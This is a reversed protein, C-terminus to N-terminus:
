TRAEVQDQEFLYMTKTYYRGRGKTKMEVRHRCVSGRKIRYGKNYWVSATYLPIDSPINHAQRYATMISQNTM